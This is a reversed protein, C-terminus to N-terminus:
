GIRDQGPVTPLNVGAVLRHWRTTIPSRTHSVLGFLSFSPLFTERPNSCGRCTCYPHWTSSLSLPHFFVFPALPHDDLIHVYFCSYPQLLRMM